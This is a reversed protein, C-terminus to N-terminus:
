CRLYRGATDLMATRRNNTVLKSIFKSTVVTTIKKIEYWSMLEILSQRWSDIPQKAAEQKGYKQQNWSTVTQYFSFYLRNFM